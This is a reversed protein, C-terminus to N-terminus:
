YYDYEDHHSSGPCYRCHEHKYTYLGDHGDAKACKKCYWAYCTDCRGGGGKQQTEGTCFGCLHAVNCRACIHTEGCEAKGHECEICVKGTEKDNCRDDCDDCTAAPVVNKCNAKGCYANGDADV